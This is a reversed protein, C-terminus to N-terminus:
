NEVATKFILEMIRIKNSSQHSNYTSLRVDLTEDM